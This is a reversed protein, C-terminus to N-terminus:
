LICQRDFHGILLTFDKFEGDRGLDYESGEPNAHKDFKSEEDKYTSIEDNLGVSHNYYKSMKESQAVEMEKQEYQTLQSVHTQAKKLVLHLIAEKSVGSSQLTNGDDLEKGAFLIRQQDVPVNERDKIKSKLSAITDTAELDFTITKGSLTKIFIFMERQKNRFPNSSKKAIEIFRAKERFSTIQSSKKM